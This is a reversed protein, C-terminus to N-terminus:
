GQIEIKELLEKDRIDYKNMLVDSGPYCDKGGSM